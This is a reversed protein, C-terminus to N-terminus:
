PSKKEAAIRRRVLREVEASLRFNTSRLLALARDFDILGALHADALVGLTGTVHLNRREAESRGAQDDILLEDANLLQALTLAAREGPDLFGLAPDSPPDPQVELWAPLAAIWALVAAPTQADTLERIVAQPVIVRAYLPQLVDVAGILVLYNLPGTDAIVIV